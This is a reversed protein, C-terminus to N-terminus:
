QGWVMSTIQLSVFTIIVIGIILVIRMIEKFLGKNMRMLIVVSILASFILILITIIYPGTVTWIENFNFLEIEPM